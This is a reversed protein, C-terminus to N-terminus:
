AATLGRWAVPYVSTGASRAVINDLGLAEVQRLSERAAGQSVSTMAIVAVIGLVIGLISLATRLTYRGLAEHAIRVAESLEAFSVPVADERGPYVSFRSAPRARRCRRQALCWGSM